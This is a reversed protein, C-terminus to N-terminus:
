LKAGQFIAKAQALAEMEQTRSQQRLDFNKVLFDCKKHLEQNYEGLTLLDDITAKLDDAAQVKDADTQAMQASKNTVEKSAAENSATSDKMFTEYAAQADGEAKMAETELEKSEDVLTEIMAMVGSSGANKKYTGQAPPEQGEELLAAAAAAYFSKLRDLAKKLIAQTARQDTITVQFEHNAQERLQSAKTMEKSTDAIESKLVSIEETLQEILTTDDNIKTELDEKLSMKEATQKDNQNFESVCYDKQKVEEAQEEKLAVKMKDINAIVEDFGGAVLGMSLAALRPKHLEKAAKQLMKVALQRGSKRVTRSSLQIFTGFGAKNFQDKADDDNLIAITEAVATLEENRVKVRDNYEKDANDCKLALNSLFENDASLQARTDALDEKGHANIQKAEAMEVTKTDILDEAAKVEQTKAKKVAAYQAVAEEEDTKGQALNTEFSEKMGKLIGFIASSPAKAKGKANQQLMITGPRQLLSLVARHDSPSMWHKKMHHNLVNQLQVLSEQPLAAGGQVKSMVGIANKLSALSSIMDKENTRYEEQEKARIGTAEELAETNAKAEKTLQKIEVDLQAVKAAAAPIAATLDTIRAEAAEVAATKEEKNTTCWCGLKEYMDADEAAEKEIQAKMENLLGIVKAVANLKQTHQSSEVKLAAKAGAFLALSLVVQFKM